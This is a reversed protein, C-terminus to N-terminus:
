AKQTEGTNLVSRSVDTGSSSSRQASAKPFRGTSAHARVNIYYVSEKNDPVTVPRPRVLTDYALAAADERALKTTAGRGIWQRRGIRLLVAVDQGGPAVVPATFALTVEQRQAWENLLSRYNKTTM